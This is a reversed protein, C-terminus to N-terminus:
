PRRRECTIRAARRVRPGGAKLPTPHAQKADLPTPHAQKADPFHERLRDRVRAEERGV